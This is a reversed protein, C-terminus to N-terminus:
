YKIKYTTNNCFYIWKDKSNIYDVHGEGKHCKDIEHNLRNSRADESNWSTYAIASLIVFVFISEKM